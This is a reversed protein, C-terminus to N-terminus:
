GPTVRVFYTLQVWVLLLDVFANLSWIVLWHLWTYRAVEPDDSHQQQRQRQQEQQQMSHALDQCQRVLEACISL